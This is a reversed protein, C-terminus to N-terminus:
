PGVWRAELTPPTLWSLVEAHSPLARHNVLGILIEQLAIDDRYELIRPEGDIGALDAAKAIADNEYGVADVLGNALAQRGTYLRGDAIQRVTESSLNRGQVVIDVFADYTENTLEQWYTQETDTMARFPSGFDKRPGSAITVAEVGHKEMLGEISIFESVVGISGTLTNPTAIIWDAPVSVYYGGSAALDGMSVVIPKPQSVLAHYILDTAVVGGGPSNVALVIAKVNEDEAAAGVHEIIKRSNAASIDLPGSTSMIVGDVRIIAVADGSGLSPMVEERGSILRIGLASTFILGSCALIPLSCAIM